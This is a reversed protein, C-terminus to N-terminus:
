REGDRKCCIDRRHPYAIGAASLLIIHYQSRFDYFNYLTSVSQIFYVGRGGEECSFLYAHACMSLSRVLM